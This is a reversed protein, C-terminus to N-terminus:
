CHIKRKRCGLRCLVHINGQVMLATNHRDLVYGGKNIVELRVKDFNLWDFWDLKSIITVKFHYSPNTARITYSANVRSSHNGNSGGDDYLVCNDSVVENHGSVGMYLTQQSYGVLYCLSLM